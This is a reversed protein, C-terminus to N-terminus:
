DIWVSELRYTGSPIGKFGHVNNRWAYSYPPYDLPIYPADASVLAQLEAYIRARQATNQTTEGLQVLNIAKPNNYNTYYSYSGGGKPVCQFTCMDDPDTIDNVSWNLFMEHHFTQFEQHYAADDLSQIAVKINLKQLENQIIQATSAYQDNGSPILLSTSFGHPFHSQSLESKAAALNYELVPAHPDYFQVSPPFFSGAPPATGFTAAASIAKRDVAHAIARRVHRDAFMPLKENLLLLDVDWSPFLGVSVSSDSKLGSVAAGPVSGAIDITGSKLQIIRQNQDAIVPFQIEDLYPKGRQWYVPNRALTLSTGPTWQKVVFPGTGIPEKFFAKPEQGNFDKPIIANCFCSLDSIFPAWPQTLEIVFTQTGSAHMSKIAVDLYSLPGATDRACRMVTFVVDEATLPKGDSFKVGPKLTFTYTKGDSSVTHGLVLWPVLTGQPTTVYLSEFIKDCTYVDNDAFANAPDFLFVGTSRGFSLTGGHKPTSSGSASSGSNSSCAQVFPGLALLGAGIATRRILDRRSLPGPYDQM